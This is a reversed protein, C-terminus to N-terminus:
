RAVLGRQHQGNEPGPPAWEAVDDPGRSRPRRDSSRKPRSGGLLKSGEILQSRCDGPDLLRQTNALQDRFPMMSGSSCAAARRAVVGGAGVCQITEDRRSWSSAGRARIAHAVASRRLPKAERISTQIYSRMRQPCSTSVRHAPRARYASRGRTETRVRHGPHLMPRRQRSIMRLSSFRVIARIRRVSM